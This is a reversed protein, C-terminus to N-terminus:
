AASRHEDCAAVARAEALSALAACARATMGAATRECAARGLEPSAGQRPDEGLVGILRDNERGDYVSMDICDPRLHWLYSTEWVGAHDAGAIEIGDVVRDTFDFETGVLTVATPLEANIEEAVPAVWSDLPHHGCLVSVVQMGSGYLQLVVRRVLAQFQAIEADPDPSPLAPLSVLGLADRIAAGDEHEAEMHQVSRPEGYWLTPFAFGGSIEAAMECLREAKLGDLGVAAHEAHWELTGLAVFGGPFNSLGARIESPLMEHYRVKAM